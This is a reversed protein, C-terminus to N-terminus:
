EMWLIHYPKKSACAGPVCVNRVISGPVQLLAKHTASVDICDRWNTLFGSGERYSGNSESLVIHYRPIYHSLILYDYFLKYWGGALTEAIVRIGDGKKSVM